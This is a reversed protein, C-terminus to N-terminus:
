TLAQLLQEGVVEGAGAACCRLSAVATPSSNSSVGHRSYRSNLQTRARDSPELDALTRLRAARAPDPRARATLPPPPNSVAAAQVCGLIEAGCHKIVGPPLDEIAGLEGPTRPVRLVIERLATDQLIWGRPRNRDAARRERWAALMRLRARRMPGRGLGKIRQWAQEPTWWSTM